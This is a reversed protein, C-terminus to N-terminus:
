RRNCEHCVGVRGSAVAEELCTACHPRHVCAPPPKCVLEDRHAKCLVCQLPRAGIVLQDRKGRQKSRARRLEHANKEEMAKKERLIQNNTILVQDHTQKISAVGECVRRGVAIPTEDDRPPSLKVADAVESFAVKKVEDVIDDRKRKMRQVAREEDDSSHPSVGFLDCIAGMKRDLAAVSRRLSEMTERRDDEADVRAAPIPQRGVVAGAVPAAAAAKPQGRLDNAPRKQCRKELTSAWFHQRCAHSKNDSANSALARVTKNCHPCKWRAFLEMRSSGQKAAYFKDDIRIFDGWISTGVM